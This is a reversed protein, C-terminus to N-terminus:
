DQLHKVAWFLHPPKLPNNNLLGLPIGRPLSPPPLPTLTKLGSLHSAELMFLRPFRTIKKKQRELAFQDNMFKKRNFGLTKIFCIYYIFEKTVNRLLEILHRVAIGNKFISSKLSSGKSEKHQLSAFDSASTFCKFYVNQM